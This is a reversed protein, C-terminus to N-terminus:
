FFDTALYSQWERGYMEVIGKGPGGWAKIRKDGYLFKVTTFPRSSDFRRKERWLVTFTDGAATNVLMNFVTHFELTNNGFKDVIHDGLVRFGYIKNDFLECLMKQSDTLERQLKMVYKVKKRFEAPHEDWRDTQPVATIDSLDVFTKM